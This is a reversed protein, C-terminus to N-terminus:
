INKASYYQFDGATKIRHCNACLVECKSVEKLINNISYGHNIMDAINHEKESPNIHNFELVRPDDIGCQVCPNSLKFEFLTKQAQKKYRKTHSKAKKIYYKKNKDYHGKSYEKVCEKCRAQRLGDKKSKFSFHEEPKNKNCGTCFKVM